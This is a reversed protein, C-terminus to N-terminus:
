SDPERSKSIVTVSASEREKVIKLLETHRTRFAKSGIAPVDQNKMKSEMSLLTYAMAGAGLTMDDTTEANPSKDELIAYALVQRTFLPYEPQDLGLHLDCACM